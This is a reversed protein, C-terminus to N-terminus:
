VRLTARAVLEEDLIPGGELRKYILMISDLDKSWVATIFMTAATRDLLDPSDQYVSQVTGFRQNFLWRIRTDLSTRHSEPIEKRWHRRTPVHVIDALTRM